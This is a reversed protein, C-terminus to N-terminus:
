LKPITINSLDVPGSPEQSRALEAKKETTPEISLQVSGPKITLCQNFVQMQEATLTRYEKVELEAKYRVLSDLNIKAERFRDAGTKLMVEDIKREIPYVAKLYYGASEPLAIGLDYKNTGEKPATFFKAFIRNRLLHEALKLKNLEDKMRYWTFVDQITVEPLQAV